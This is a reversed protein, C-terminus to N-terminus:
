FPPIPDTGELVKLENRAVDIRHEADAIAQRHVAAQMQREVEAIGDALAQLPENVDDRDRIQPNRDLLGM